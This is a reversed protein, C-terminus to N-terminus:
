GLPGLRHVGRRARPNLRLAAQARTAIVARPPRASAEALPVLVFDRRNLEPHPLLLRGVERRSAPKGIRRGDFDLLDVDLPRPGNRQGPRRGAARELRKALRLLAAPGISGELGIVANLFDPQSLLGVPATRYISSRRSVTLGAMELERLARVLASAPSGWPGPVNAGLALWIRPRAPATIAASPHSWARSKERPNCM